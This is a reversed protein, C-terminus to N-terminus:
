DSVAMCVASDNVPRRTHVRRFSSRGSACDFIAHALHGWDLTPQVTFWATAQPDLRLALDRGKEAQEANRALAQDARCRLTGRAGEKAGEKTGEKTSELRSGTCAPRAKSLSPM